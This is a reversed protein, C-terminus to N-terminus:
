RVNCGNHATAKVARLTLHPRHHGVRPRQRAFQTRCREKYRHLTRMMVRVGENGLHDFPAHAGEKDFPLDFQGFSAAAHHDLMGDLGQLAPCGIMSGQETTRHDADRPRIALGDDLLPNGLLQGEIHLM